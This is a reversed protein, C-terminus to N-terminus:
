IAFGPSQGSGIKRMPCRAIWANFINPYEVTSQTSDARVMGNRKALELRQLRHLSKNRICSRAFNQKTEQITRSETLLLIARQSSTLYSTSGRTDISLTWQLPPVLSIVALMLTALFTGALVASVLQPRRGRSAWAISFSLPCLLTIQLFTWAISVATISM